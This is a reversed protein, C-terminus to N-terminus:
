SATTIQVVIVLLDLMMQEILIICNLFSTFNVAQM